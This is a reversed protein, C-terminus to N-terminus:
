LNEGIPCAMQEGLGAILDGKGALLVQRAAHGHAADAEGADEGPILPIFTGVPRGFEYPLLVRPGPEQDTRQDIGVVDAVGTAVSGKTGASKVESRRLLLTM